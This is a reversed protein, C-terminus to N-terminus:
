IESSNLGLEQSGAEFVRRTAMTRHGRATGEFEAAERPSSTDDWFCLSCPHIRAFGDGNGGSSGVCWFVGGMLTKM